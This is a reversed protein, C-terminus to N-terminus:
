SHRKLPGLDGTANSGPERPEDLEAIRMLAGSDLVTVRSGRMRIVGRASLSKVVRSFTEPQVSLRSALIGKRVDLELTRAGPPMKTVLYRSVRSTANHLTLEDIEGILRRLRQSLTGLLLFCTDVSERLMVAFDQADIAILESACLAAACVPYRPANLFMLAEAFTQGPSVIEIVKEAGDSSLRFLQMQGALLLYFRSATDGQSFLWQDPDLHVRVAHRAVRELQEADLRSLLAGRRLEEIMLTMGNTESCLIRIPWEDEPVWRIM